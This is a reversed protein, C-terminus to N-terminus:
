NDEPSLIMLRRDESNHVMVPTGSCLPHLHLSLMRTPEDVNDQRRLETVCRVTM